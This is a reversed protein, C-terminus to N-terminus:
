RNTLSRKKKIYCFLDLSPEYIDNEKSKASCLFYGVLYFIIKKETFDETINHSLITDMYFLCQYFILDTYDLMKMMKQLTLIIMKRHKLYLKISKTFCEIDLKEENSMNYEENLFPYEFETKEKMSKIMEIPNIESEKIKHKTKLTYYINNDATKILISGCKSCFSHNINAKLIDKNSSFPCNCYKKEKTDKM